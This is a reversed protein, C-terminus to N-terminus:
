AVYSNRVSSRRRDRRDVVLINLGHRALDAASVALATSRGVGGKLGYFAFRPISPEKDSPKQMWDEGALRRDLLQFQRGSEKNTRVLGRQELLNELLPSTSRGGLLPQDALYPKLEASFRSVIQDREEESLTGSPVFSLRGFVDRIVRGTELRDGIVSSIAAVFQDVIIEIDYLPPM